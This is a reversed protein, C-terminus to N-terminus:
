HRTSAGGRREAVHLFLLWGVVSLLVWTIGRYLVVVIAAADPQAGAGVLTALLATEALGTGGPTLQLAISGQVALYGVVITPWHVYAAAALVCAGLAACDLLWSATAVGVLTTWQRPRLRLRTLRDTLDAEVREAPETFWHARRLVPVRRGAGHLRRAVWGAARPRDALVLAGGALLLLLASIGVAAAMPLLGDAALGLPALAVLIVSSIMSANIVTWVALTTDVGRRRFAAGAYATAAVAGATPLTQALANGIFTVSQVTPAPLRAGGFVLLRRHLAGYTLLSATALGVAVASWAWHLGAFRGRVDDVAALRPALRWVAVGVGALALVVDVVTRWRSRRWAFRIRAATVAVLDRDSGHSEKRTRDQRFVGM